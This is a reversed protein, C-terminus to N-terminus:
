ASFNGPDDLLWANDEIALTTVVAELEAEVAAEVEAVVAVAVEGRVERGIASSRNAKRPSITNAGSRRNEESSM